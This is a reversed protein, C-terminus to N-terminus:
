KNAGSLNLGKNNIKAANKKQLIYSKASKLNRRTTTRLVKKIPEPLHTKGYKAVSEAKLAWKSAMFDWVDERTEKHTLWNNVKAQKRFKIRKM